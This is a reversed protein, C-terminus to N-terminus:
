DLWSSIDNSPKSKSVNVEMDNLVDLDVNRPTEFLKKLQKQEETHKKYVMMINNEIIAFIYNIMRSDNAFEKNEIAFTIRDKVFDITKYVVAWDYHGGIINLKKSMYSPAYPVKLLECLLNVCRVRDRKEQLFDNYEKESCYYENKGKVNTIKYAEDVLLESKCIKCKCKRKSM